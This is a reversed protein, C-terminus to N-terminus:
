TSIFQFMPIKTINCFACFNIFTNTHKTLDNFLNIDFNPNINKVIEDDIPYAWTFNYGERYIHIHTGGIIKKDPNRHPKNDIDLRLLQISTHVRQQFSCRSLIARKRNIDILFKTNPKNKSVANLVLFENQEPFDIRDECINKETRIYNLAEEDNM